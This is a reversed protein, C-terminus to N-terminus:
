TGPSRTRAAVARSRWSASKSADRGLPASAVVLRRRRLCSTRVAVRRARAPSSARAPGVSVLSALPPCGLGRARASGHASLVLLPPPRPTIVRVLCKSSFFVRWIFNEALSRNRPSLREDAKCADRPAVADIRRGGRARERGRGALLTWFCRLQNKSVHADLHVRASPPSCPLGTTESAAGFSASTTATSRRRANLGTARPSPTKASRSGSIDVDEHPVREDGDAVEQLLLQPERRSACFHFIRTAASLEEVRGEASGRRATKM